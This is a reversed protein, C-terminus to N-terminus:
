WGSPSTAKTERIGKGRLGYGDWDLSYKSLEGDGTSIPGCLARRGLDRPDRM